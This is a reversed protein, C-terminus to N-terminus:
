DGSGAAIRALEDDSMERAVAIRGSHNLDLKDGYVKPLMKSLRWQRSSLVARGAAPDVEGSLMRDELDEMGDFEHAAFTARAQACKAAFEGDARMWREVTRRNPMDPDECIRRLSMRTLREVIEDAVEPPFM